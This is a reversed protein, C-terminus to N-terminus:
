KKNNLVSIERRRIIPFINNKLKEYDRKNDVEGWVLNEVKICHFKYNRAIDLILYEYSLYPNENEKYEEMMLELLKLSIKSIGVMEGDIRNFKHIDKSLKFLCGDKVQVFGEDGSGTEDTILMCDRKKSDLIAEIGKTEVILDGEILLFDDDIVGYILSLTKMNGFWRLQEDNIVYIDNDNIFEDTIAQGDYGTIIYIKKIGLIRLQEINHRLITKGEIHLAPIPNTFEENYGAALIVAKKINKNEHENNLVIKESASREIEFQLFEFGKQTLSYGKSEKSIYGVEIGKKILDNVKGLSINLSSAIKRQSLNKSQNILFVLNFM